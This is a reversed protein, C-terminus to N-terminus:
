SPVRLKPRQRALWLLMMALPAVNVEGSDVLAMAHDFSIVHSRIDENEEALGGQQQGRGSLSCLGLFCHFFETSYGPSAYVAPMDILRDLALGAEEATERHAAATPLEGADVLGAIPELVWPAPDGRNFAGLRLQEVLLVQDTVPDYPLVLAVDFSMFTERPLEASTSGDFRKHRATFAKVRFFGNFGPRDGTIKVDESTMKNRLEQPAPTAALEQAWARARLFPFLQAVEAASSRGYRSMVDQAAGMTIQGWQGCWADLSWLDGHAWVGDNAFYVEASAEHGDAMVTMVRLDYSFGGEYFNLRAVDESSLGRLLVGQASAGEQPLILPFAQDKAWFIAHDPLEAQVFDLQDAARGMVLEL